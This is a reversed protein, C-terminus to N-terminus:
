QDKLLSPRDFLEALALLTRQSPGLDRRQALLSVALAPDDTIIADVGRGAMTAIGLADNVTWVMIEKGREHVRRVLARSAFRANLALFDVDLQSLDGVAVSSLLGVKWGPRIRKMERVGPLSLSMAVVQDAMGAEDVLEAVSQELRQEHGYYKLEINVRIRDKCLALVERLTPVRQDSFSLDFWSGIDTYGLQQLTSEGVVLPVGGVKKLDSDHIVVIEGDATEQVDIEVYNAGADIAGQISALTNEPYHASAGRHAMVDPEADFELTNVVGWAALLALVAAVALMGALAKWGVKPLAGRVKARLDLDVTRWLSFDRFLKIILLSFLAAGVFSLLFSALFGFGSMLLLSLLLLRISEHDSSVLLWSLLWGAFSVLLSLLLMVLLWALVARLVDWRHGSCAEVSGAIAQGPRQSGLLLLPLSFIWGSLLYLIMAVWGLGVVAALGLALYWESPRTSLYFNIDYDSLLAWYIGGLLGLFPATYLLVRLLLSVALGFLRGSRAALFALVGPVSVEAGKETMWAATVLAAYELFVIISIVSAILLFALFGAPSLVHYLIDQDSLAADGSLSVLFRLLLASLPALVVFVLVSVAIHISLFPRWNAKLQELLVGTDRWASNLM